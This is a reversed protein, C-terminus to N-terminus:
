KKLVRFIIYFDIQYEKGLFFIYLDFMIKRSLAEFTKM